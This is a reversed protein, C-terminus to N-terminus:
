DNIVGLSSPNKHGHTVRLTSFSSPLKKKHKILLLSFLLAPMLLLM